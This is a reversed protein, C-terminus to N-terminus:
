LYLWKRDILQEKLRQIELDNSSYKEFKSQIYKLLTSRFQTHYISYLEREAESTLKIKREIYRTSLDKLRQIHNNVNVYDLDIDEQLTKLLREKVVMFYYISSSKTTPIIRLDPNEIYLKKYRERFSTMTEQMELPRFDEFFLTWDTFVDRYYNVAIQQEALNADEFISVTKSIFLNIFEHTVLKVFDLYIDMEETIKQNFEDNLLDYLEFARGVYSFMLNYLKELDNYYEIEISDLQSKVIDFYKQKNDITAELEKRLLALNKIRVGNKVKKYKQSENIVFDIFLDWFVINYKITPHGAGNILKYFDDSIGYDKCKERYIDLFSEYTIANKQKSYIEDLVCPYYLKSNIIDLMEKTSFITIFKEDLKELLMKVDDDTLPIKEFEEQSDCNFLEFILERFFLKSALLKKKDNKIQNYLYFIKKM